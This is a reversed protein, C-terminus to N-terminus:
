RAAVARRPAAADAVGIVLAMLLWLTSSESLNGSFMAGAAYQALLAALWAYAPALRALRLAQVVALGFLLTFALGTVVGGAMFAELLLNHPHTELPEVGAGLLPHDQLARWAGALLHERESDAFASESLREFLFLTEIDSSFHYAPLAAALLLLASLPRVLRRGLAPLMVLLAAALALAPGRSGSAGIAVVGLVLSMLWWAQAARRRPAAPAYLRWLSLLVATTGLHGITITNVTETEVRLAQLQLQALLGEGFFIIWLNLLLAATCAAGLPQLLRQAIRRADGGTMALAPLMTAGLAFSLHEALPVKLTAPQLAADFLLRTLYALWFLSWAAWFATSAAGARSWRVRGLVSLALLVCLARAAISATRNDWGALHALGAVIPYGAVTFTAVALVAFAAPTREPAARPLAAASLAAAM